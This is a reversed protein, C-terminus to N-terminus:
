ELETYLESKFMKTDKDYEINKFAVLLVYQGSDNIVGYLENKKVKILGDDLVEAYDFIFPAMESLYPLRILGYKISDRDDEMTAIVYKESVHCIDHLGIIKTNGGDSKDRIHILGLKGDQIVQFVNYIEKGYAFIPKIDDYQCSSVLKGNKVVGMKIELYSM